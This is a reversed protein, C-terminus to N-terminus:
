WGSITYVTHCENGTFGDCCWKGKIYFTDKVTYGLEILERIIDIELDEVTIENITGSECAEKIKLFVDQQKPKNKNFLQKAENVSFM